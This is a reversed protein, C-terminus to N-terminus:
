DDYEVVLIDDWGEHYDPGSEGISNAFRRLVSEPVVRERSNNRALCVEFPINFWIAVAKYGAAHAEKVLDRRYRARASTNDWYITDVGASLACKLNANAIQAVEANRTQDEASGTLDKRINDMNIRVATEPIIGDAKGKEWWTSKGCGPIGVAVYLTKQM